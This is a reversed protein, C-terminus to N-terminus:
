LKIEIITFIFTQSAKTHTIENKGHKTTQTTARNSEIGGKSFHQHKEIPDTSLCLM